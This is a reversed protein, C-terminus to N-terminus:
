SQFFLKYLKQIEEKINYGIRQNQTGLIIEGIALLISEHFNHIMDVIEKPNTLINELRNMFAFKVNTNLKAYSIIRSLNEAKKAKRSVIEEDFEIILETLSEYGCTFPDIELKSSM